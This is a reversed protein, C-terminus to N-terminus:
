AHTVGASWWIDNVGTLVIVVDNAANFVGDHNVDVYFTSNTGTAEEVDSSLNFAAGEAMPLKGATYDVALGPTTIATLDLHDQYAAGHFTIDQFDTITQVAGVAAATFVFTDNGSGGTLQNAGAGGSISDNGLGGNITDNLPGGFMNDANDTGTLNYAIQIAPNAMGGTGGATFNFWGATASVVDAVSGAFGTMAELGAASDNSLTLTAQTASDVTVAFTSTAFAYDPTTAGDANIDWTLHSGDVTGAEFGAGTLVLTNHVNDYVASTLSLGINFAHTTAPGASPNGAPDTQTATILEAGDGMSTLDATTAHVTWHGTGDVIATNGGALTTGSDFALSVTDGIEGTGTINVGALKESNTVLNDATVADISAVAPPAITDVTIADTAPGSVNLALDTQTATVVESGQNFATVDATTVHVSWHGSGDVVATHGGALLTGSDFALSVTAGIEGSGTINFGATAEAANVMNDGTIPDILPASAITDVSFGHTTAASSNGAVDTLTATINEAGQGFNAVDAATVAISWNGSGNAVATNGGALTTGSDFTLHVTAGAEGTGTIFVGAGAETSNVIDDATVPAVTPAAPAITDVTIAHVTAGSVNGALDTLTASINEAGQGMTGVNANTVAVSWNGSGDVVTTKNALGSDFSVTVAAGAEGTGSINFGAAAEAFNVVDNGAVANVVPAVPAISDHTVNLTGAVSVNSAADTVTASLHNVSNATLTLVFDVSGATLQSLTLVDTLPTAGGTLTVTDGVKAATGDTASNNFAVTVLVPSLNTVNDNNVNSDSLAALDITPAAPAITDQLLFDGANFTLSTPISGDANRFDIQLDLGNLIGDDNLDVWLKGIDAEYVIDAQGNHATLSVAGQADSFNEANGAFVIGTATGSLINSEFAVKDHAIDFGIVTDRNPTILDGSSDSLSVYRITDNGAGLTITDAGAGGTITNDSLYGGAVSIADNGGGGFIHNDGSGATVTITDAGMGGIITNNGGAVTVTNVGNGLTISNNGTGATVVSNGTGTVITNNGNGVTVTDNGDGTNVFNNGDSLTITDNGLGGFVTNNNGPATNTVIDNGAGADVFNNGLGVHIIDNGAGTTVSDNGTGTNIVFNHAGVTGANITFAGEGTPDSLPDNLSTGDITITNGTVNSFTNDTFTMAGSNDGVSALVFTEVGTVNSLDAAGNDAALIMRDNASTGGSITDAATVNADNNRFTIASGSLHGDFSDNGGFLRVTLNNTFAADLVVNDNASSGDIFAIGARAAQAGLQAILAVNSVTSNTSVTLTYTGTSTSTTGTILNPYSALNLSYGGSVTPTFVIQSNLGPGSDDDTAIVTSGDRGILQMTPDSLTGGTLDFTYTIGAELYISQHDVENAASIAENFTLPTPPAERNLHEVSNVNAFSDDTVMGGTIVIADEGAGGNISVTAGLDAGNIIVTDSGDGGNFVINNLTGVNNKVFVDNGSGGTVNFAFDADRQSADLTVTLPASGTGSTVNIQNLTNVDNFPSPTSSTFTLSSAASAGNQTTYNEVGIVNHLDVAATVAGSGNMMAVTDTGAAGNISDTVDLQTGFVEITNTGTGTDVYDSGSGILITDNGGGAVISDNGAGGDLTDAGAGGTITDNGLGGVVSSAVTASGTLVDNGTGGNITVAITEAAANVTDGLTNGANIVQIGAATANAGLTASNVQDEGISGLNLTAVAAAADNAFAADTIVVGAWHMTINDSGGGNSVITSSTLNAVDAVAGADFLYTDNGTGGSLLDGGASGYIVDNGAGGSLTDALAGGRLADAAAGGTVNLHYATIASGDVTLTENIHTGLSDDDAQLAAGNIVLVGTNLVNPNPANGDGLTFSYVNGDVNGSGDSAPRTGLNVTEFGTFGGGATITTTGDLNLTDTGAGGNLMDANTLGGNVFNFTDNGSGTSVSDNGAGLNITLNSTFGSADVVDNGANLANITTIGAAQANAGLVGTTGASTLTLTQINSVNLWNSDATGANATLTNSGAGGDVVDRFYPLGKSGQYVGDNYADLNSGAVITDNGGGTSITDNGAGMTVLDNGSDTTIADNGAGGTVTNNGSGTITVSNNGDGTVVTNAGNGTIVITDNGSGSTVTNGGNGTITVHNTGDGANVTNGGSGNVTINDDGGLTTISNVGTLTNGASGATVTNNGAGANITNSGNGVTISDNGDTTTITNNGDLATVVDNGGSGTVVNNGGRVNITDNNVSGVVTDSGSGTDIAVGGTAGLVSFNLNGTATAAGVTRVTNDLAASITLNGSGDINLTTLKTDLAAMTSSAAAAHLNVTEIGGNWDGVRGVTVTGVMLSNDTLNIADSGGAVVSDQFRVNLNPAVNNYATLNVLEINALNPLQIFSADQHGNTDRMTTVGVTGSMDISMSAQGDSTVDFTQIGTTEFGALALNQPVGSINTPNTDVFARLLDNGGGGVLVDGAGLDSNAALFIEDVATGTLQDVGPTLTLYALDDNTITGTATVTSALASGSLQLLVTENSEVITDGNVVVSVTAHTQGAAFTLTGATPVFDNNPTATGTALTQYNITIPAAPAHDLTLSYTLLTTGSNGEVVSPADATLAFHTAAFVIAAEAATAPAPALTSIDVAPTVGAIISQLTPLDTANGLTVETYYQAVHVQNSVLIATQGWTADNHPMNALNGMVQYIVDGRSYAVHTPTATMAAVIDSVAQAKAALTATDGVVNQVLATAFQQSDWYAPYLALFQDKTTYVNVIQATTMGASYADNLQSMYTVGPAADFTLAFFLYADAKNQATMAM